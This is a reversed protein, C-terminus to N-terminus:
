GARLMMCGLGARRPAACGIAGGGRQQPHVCRVACLASRWRRWWERAHRRVQVVDAIADGFVARLQREIGLKLTTASSACSACAGTLSVAVVGGEVGMVSVDGGDALLYPRVEELAAEM